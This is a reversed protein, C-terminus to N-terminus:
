KFLLLLGRYVVSGAGSEESVVFVSNFWSEFSGNLAAAVPTRAFSSFAIADEAPEAAPVISAEYAALKENYDSPWSPVAFAALSGLVVSIALIPPTRMMRM